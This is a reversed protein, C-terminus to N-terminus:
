PSQRWTTLKDHFLISESSVDRAFAHLMVTLLADNSQTEIMTAKSSARLSEFLDFVRSRAQNLVFFEYVTPKERWPGGVAISGYGVGKGDESLLYEKSWGPRTHISDHIVQCCMEQRYLDRLGEIDSPEVQRSEVPM